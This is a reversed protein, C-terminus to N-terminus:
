PAYAEKIFLFKLLNFIFFTALAASKPATMKDGAYATSIVLRLSLSTPISKPM